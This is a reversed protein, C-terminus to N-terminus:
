ERHSRERSFECFNYPPWPGTCALLLGRTGFQERLGDLTSQFQATKDKEALFAGNLIMEGTHGNLEPQLLANSRALRVSQALRDFCEQGLRAVENSVANAVFERRKRTLLFARGKPAARIKRDLEVLGPNLASLADALRQRDCYIKVGWEDQGALEALSRQFEDAHAQLMARVGEDSKFVTGFKFPVVSGSQMVHEVVREHLKVKETLWDPDALNQALREESFDDLSVRGVVAYLGDHDLLEPRESAALHELGPARDTVCYVYILDALNTERGEVKRL